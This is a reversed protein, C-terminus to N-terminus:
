GVRAVMTYLPGLTGGVTGVTDATIELTIIREGTSLQFPMITDEPLGALQLASRIGEMISGVENDGILVRAIVRENGM